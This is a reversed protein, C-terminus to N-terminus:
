QKAQFVNYKTSLSFPSKQSLSDVCIYKLITITRTPHLYVVTILENTRGGVGRNM